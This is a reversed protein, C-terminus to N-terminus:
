QSDLVTNYIETMREAAVSWDRTTRMLNHNNEAVSRVHGLNNTCWLLAERMAEPTQEKVLFGNKQQTVVEPVIGVQFSVPFKGCSMAEVVPRPCGELHSTTLIVDINHYFQVMEEQSLTGDAIKLDCIGDCAQEAIPLQKIPRIVNGAWGAVLPGKRKPGITFLNTDVGQRFLFSPIPLNKVAEVLFENVVILANARFMWEKYLTEATMKKQWTQGNIAKIVKTHGLTFPQHYTTWEGYIHILDFNQERIVPRDSVYLITIDFRNRLHVALSKATIDYAWGPIDALM